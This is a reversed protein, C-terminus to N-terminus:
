AANLRAAIALTREAQALHLREVMQGAIQIAGRDANEPLGYSDVVARAFDIDDASPSFARNCLDIQSPHILTKGDFGLRAGQRCQVDFVELNSFDNYVGDLVTLGFARAAVVVMGLMPLLEDRGPGPRATMEKALDNTGMVLASLAPSSAIDELRLMARATEVMAWLPTGGGLVAAYSAIDSGSDVKPVLVADLRAKSFATLDDQGWPTSLANVRVVVEKAGFDQGLAALAQERAAAKRDPAVADELDIIVVDADLSAAKQLAKGNSGPVYLASRRPRATESM